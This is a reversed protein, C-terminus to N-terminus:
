DTQLESLMITLAYTRGVIDQWMVCDDVELNPCGGMLPSANKFRTGFSSGVSVDLVTKSKAIWASYKDVAAKKRKPDNVSLAYENGIVSGETNLRRLEKMVVASVITKKPPSNFQQGPIASESRAPPKESSQLQMLSDHDTELTRLLNWGFISGYVIIAIATSGGVTKSVSKTWRALAIQRGQRHISILLGAIGIGIISIITPVFFGLTTTGLAKLFNDWSRSLLDLLFRAM